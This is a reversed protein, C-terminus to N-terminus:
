RARRTMAKLVRRYQGARAMNWQWQRGEAASRFPKMSRAVEENVEIAERLARRLVRGQRGSVYRAM